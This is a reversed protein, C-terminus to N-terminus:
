VQESPQYNHQGSPLIPQKSHLHAVKKHLNKRLISNLQQRELKFKKCYIYKTKAHFYNYESTAKASSYGLFAVPNGLWHNLYTPM